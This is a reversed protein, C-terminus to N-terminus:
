RPAAPASVLLPSPAPMRMWSGTSSKRSTTSKSSGAGVASPQLANAAPIQKRGCSGASRAAARSCISAIASSSPRSTRPQRSTGTSGSPRRDRHWPAPSCATCPAAKRPPARDLRRFRGRGGPRGAACSPRPPCVDVERRQGAPGDGVLAHQRCHLQRLVKRIEAVFSTDARDRDHVAPEGGVRERGPRQGVREAEDGVVALDVGHAAVAVAHMGAFRHEALALIGPSRAPKRRDARGVGRVRRREVLNEFQQVEAAAAQGMRHQHHDGLRPLVVSRQGSGCRSNQCNWAESISGHSPGAQTVKVSPVTTPATNSRLPNRGPRHHRVM